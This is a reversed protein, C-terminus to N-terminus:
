PSVGCWVCVCVCVSVEVYKGLGRHLRRGLDDHDQRGEVEEDAGQREEAVGEAEQGALARPLDEGVREDEVVGRRTQHDADQRRDQHLGGGGRRGDDDGHDPGPDELHVWVCVCLACVCVSVCVCELDPLGDRDDHAGVDPGRDRRGDHAQPLGAVAM